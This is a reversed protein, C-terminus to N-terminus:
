FKTSLTVSGNTPAGYYGQAWMLSTIYKHNTINRVNGILAVRETLDYRAMLDVLAYDAQRTVIETGAATTGQDRKIRSQWQVSAGVKLGPVFSPTYSTALKLTQRPVYTRTPHGDKDDVKLLTYGGSVELGQAIKGSVDLEIGKSTADIPAYYTLNYVTSYGASEALNNQEVRFVAASANLRNGFWAGKIGAELNNGEIPDLPKNDISLQQQPSFISTYSAYASISPTITAVAGIYPNLKTKKYSHPTNYQSGSSSMHTLNAGAILKLGDAVNIRAVAYGSQRKNLFVGDGTYADFAPLPFSGDFATNGPLPTGIGQGYDSHLKNDDRAWNGGLVLDHSRGFLTFPGSVSADGIWQAERGSYGSPYAALGAGTVKDPTGYVYFLDGRNTTVRRQVVAKAQWGGGLDQALEGFTQRDYINWYSWDAAINTGRPYDTPTGDTYYLPLAGWMNGDSKDDQRTHGLTVTTNPTLDAEVVGYFITKTLSYRDIYSNKDEVVGVVRARITGSANLPTSVDAEVRKDDWSGITLAASANFEQTPRKRIFNITASPNGTSSLLGNAGRLVEIRDYLATDIDGIQEGTAFPLGVGDFQFNTIEFGRATFYTRDTEVKQVNIGTAAALADNVNNLAFDGIQTRTIISISQPTEKLTLPLRTASRSAGTTYSGSSETAEPDQKSATVVIDGPSAPVSAAEAANAAGPIAAARLALVSVTALAARLTPRTM